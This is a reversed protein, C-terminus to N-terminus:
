RQMTTKTSYRMINTEIVLRADECRQQPVMLQEEALASMGATPQLSCPSLHPEECRVLTQCLCLEKLHMGGEM